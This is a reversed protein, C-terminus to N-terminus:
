VSQFGDDPWLRQAERFIPDLWADEKEDVADMGNLIDGLTEMYRATSKGVFDVPPYAQPLDLLRAKDEHVQALARALHAVARCQASVQAQKEADTM